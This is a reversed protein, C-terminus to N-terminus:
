ASELMLDLDNVVDEVTSIKPAVPWKDHWWDPYSADIIVECDRRSLVDLSESQSWMNYMSTYVHEMPIPASLMSKEVALYDVGLKHEDYIKLMAINYLAKEKKPHFGPFILLKSSYPILRLREMGSFLARYMRLTCEVAQDDCGDDSKYNNTDNM